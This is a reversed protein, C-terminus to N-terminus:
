AVAPLLAAVNREANARFRESDGADLWPMGCCVQGEPLSCAYGNHELVGVLAKGIGPNQYEVLCTPFLAVEGRTGAPKPRRTRFWKSFRVRDFTPLLRDRAIGTVKEMVIRAPKVKASANVIPALTT